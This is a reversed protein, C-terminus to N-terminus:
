CRRRRGREITVSDIGHADPLTAASAGVGRSGCPAHPNGTSVADSTTSSAGADGEEENRTQGIDSWRPNELRSGRVTGDRHRRMAAERQPRACTSRGSRDRGRSEWRVHGATRGRRATGAHYVHIHESDLGDPIEMPVGKPYAGPYGGSVVVTVLAAGPRRAPPGTLSTRGERSRRWRSPWARGPSPSSWRHRPIESGATSSSWRRGDPTLMLGAYLFGRYPYGREAMGQLIPDAVERRARDVLEPTGDVVPAYAGMGGTNPGLDGDFRRKHDRSTVLPVANEGDTLFFVSLEAGPMFEEIVVERGAEGFRDEVLMERLATLADEVSEAVVAGKGAALGSAKVVIPPELGSVFDAARSYDTFIEFGATPVGCDRMLQKSFTKSSELRAAQRSPGFLPLGRGEFVEAIGDALPQEPGVVTLDISHEAAFDALGGLDSSPSRSTAVRDKPARTELRWTSRPGPITM